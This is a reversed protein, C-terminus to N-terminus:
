QCGFYKTQFERKVGQLKQGSVVSVYFIHIYCIYECLIHGVMEGVKGPPDFFLQHECATEFIGGYSGNLTFAHAQIGCEDSKIVHNSISQIGPLACSRTSLCQDRNASCRDRDVHRILVHM